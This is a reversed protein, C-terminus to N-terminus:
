CASPGPWCLAALILAVVAVVGLVKLLAGWDVHMDM